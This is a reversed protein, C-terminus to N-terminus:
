CCILVEEFGKNYNTMESVLVTPTLCGGGWILSLLKQM